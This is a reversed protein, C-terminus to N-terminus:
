GQGQGLAQRAGAEAAQTIAAVDVQRGQALQGVAETLGAIRGTLQSITYDTRWDSHSIQARLNTKRGSNNPNDFEENLIDRVARYADDYSVDDGQNNLWRAVSARFGSIDGPWGAPDIKKREVRNRAWEKHAIAWESGRGIHRLLAAVGRPYAEIQAATWDYPREGASEAEVGIMYPNANSKPLGPWDGEGAHNALGSAIVLWTGDRGLGLQALPGPTYSNGNLVTGLSPYNGARPGATHHLLVGRLDRMGDAGRTRWGNVESVKLGAGRLM